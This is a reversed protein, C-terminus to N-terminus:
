RQVESQKALWEGFDLPEPEAESEEFLEWALVYYTAYEGVHTLRAEAAEARATMAALDAEIRDFAAAAALQEIGGPPLQEAVLCRLAEIDNM